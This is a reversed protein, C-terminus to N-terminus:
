NDKSPVRKKLKYKLQQSGDNSKMLFVEEKIIKHLAARSAVNNQQQKEPSTNIKGELKFFLNVPYLIKFLKKEGEGSQIHCWM